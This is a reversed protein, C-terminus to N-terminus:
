RGIQRIWQMCRKREMSRTLDWGTQIDIAEGTSLGFKRAEVTVRPISFVEAIEVKHGLRNIEMKADSDGETKSKKGPQLHEKSRPGFWTAPVQMEEENTAEQVPGFWTALFQM